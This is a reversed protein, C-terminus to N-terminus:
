RRRRLERARSPNKKSFARSAHNQEDPRDQGYLRGAPRPSLSAGSKETLIAKIGATAVRYAIDRGTLLTTAPIPVAGLRILGLMAIWWPPVRPLMVLVCDGRRIGSQHLFSAARRFRDALEAFSYRRAGGAEDVCWLAPDHPGRLAWQEMVDRAFFNLTEAVQEGM